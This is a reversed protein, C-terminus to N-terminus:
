PLSPLATKGIKWTTLYVNNQLKEISVICWIKRAKGIVRTEHVTTTLVSSTVRHFLAFAFSAGIGTRAGFTEAHTTSTLSFFIM